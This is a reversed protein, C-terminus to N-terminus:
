QLDLAGAFDVLRRPAGAFDVLRRPFTATVTQISCRWLGSDNCIGIGVGYGNLGKTIVCGAAACINQIVVRGPQKATAWINQSYCM